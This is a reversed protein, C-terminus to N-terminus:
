RRAGNSAVVTEKRPKKPPPADTGLGDDPPALSVVDGDALGDEITVFRDNSIGTKVIRPEFRGGRRVYLVPAHSPGALAQVPVRLVSDAHAVFIEVRASMGPRLDAPPDDIAVEVTYVKVDPNMWRTAANPITAIKVVTGRLGLDPFEDVRVSAAQGMRVRTMSSEHVNVRVGMSTPDPLSIIPQREDVKAGVRIPEADGYRGWEEGTAYVVIGPAKARITTGALQARLSELRSTELRLKEEQGKLEAKAHAVASRAKAEVRGRNTRAELLDSVRKEVEMPGEYSLYLALAARAQDVEVTKRDLSLRDAVREDASVYGKALLKQTWRLRDRARALEEDALRIDTEKKRRMQLAEGDLQADMVLDAADPRDVEEAILVRDALEVGLYRQLQLLAVREDIQARKVDREAQQTDGDLAAQAQLVSSQALTTEVERRSIRERLDSSDLEVLVKGDAVDQATVVTGEPAISIIKSEGEVENAIVQSRLSQLSGGEIVSVSLPGARVTWTPIGGDRGGGALAMVVLLAGAAAVIAAARWGAKGRLRSYWPTAPRRATTPALDIVTRIADPTIANM